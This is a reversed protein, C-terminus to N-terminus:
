ITRSRPASPPDADCIVKAFGFVGFLSGILAGATVDAPSHRHDVVRSSMARVHVSTLGPPYLSTFSIWSVCVCVCGQAHVCVSRADKAQTDQVSYSCVCLCSCVCVAWRDVIILAIFVPLLCLVYLAHALMRVHKTRWVQVRPPRNLAAGSKLTVALDCDFVGYVPARSWQM